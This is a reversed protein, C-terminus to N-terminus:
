RKAPAAAKKASEVRKITEANVGAPTPLRPASPPVIEAPKGTSTPQAGPNSMLKVDSDGLRSHPHNAEDALKTTGTLRNEIASANTVGEYVKAMQDKLKFEFVMNHLQKQIVPDNPDQAVAPILGERRMIIWSSETVQIPGTVDGDKPKHSPDQDKPDGDVLQEFAASSVTKPHAHRAIPEGLMGGVSKTAEDKSRDQAVKAFGGPNKKLETWIEQAERLKDCMIIRCRLKVGYSAEFAEKIEEPTVQVAPSALKRLALAPYVIDRAYQAPSIGREKDLTRLWAERGIQGQGFRQVNADIEADVETPTVELKAARLSQEILRRAIMTDLIETGKRALCEEALDQRTIPEGNVVAIPDNPNVPLVSPEFSAVPAKSSKAAPKAARGTAASKQARAIDPSSAGAVALAAALMTLKRGRIRAIM